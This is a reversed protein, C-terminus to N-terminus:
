SLLVVRVLEADELDMTASPVRMQQHYDSYVIWVEEATEVETALTNRWHDHAPHGFYVKSEPDEGELHEILEKVTM